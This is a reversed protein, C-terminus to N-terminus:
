RSSLYEELCWGNNVITQAAATGVYRVHWPENDIGTYAVKDHPYRLVFGYEACHAEIWRGQETSGFQEMAVDGAQLDFALGTHHESEGPRSVTRNAEAELQEQPYSPFQERLEEVRQDFLIRQKEYGRYASVIQISGVGDRVAARCMRDLARAATADGRMDPHKLIFSSDTQADALKTLHEPEAGQPWLSRKNVLVLAGDRQIQAVTLNCLQRNALVPTDLQASPNDSAPGVSPVPVSATGKSAGWVHQGLMVLGTLVVGAFLLKFFLPLFAGRRFRYTTKKRSTYAVPRKRAPPQPRKRTQPM